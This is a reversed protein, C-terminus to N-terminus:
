IEDAWINVGPRLNREQENLTIDAKRGKAVPISDGAIALSMYGKDKPKPAGAEMVRLGADQGYLWARQAATNEQPDEGTKMVEGTAHLAPEKREERRRITAVAERKTRALQPLAAHTLVRRSCPM